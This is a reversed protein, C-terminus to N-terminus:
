RPPGGGDQPSGAGAPPPQAGARERAVQERLGALERQREALDAEAAAVETRLAQLRREAGAVAQQREALTQQALDAEARLTRRRAEEEEARRELEALREQIAETGDGGLVDTPADTAVQSRRLSAVQVRAAGLRRRLAVLDDAVRREAELADQTARREAALAAELEGVRRQLADGRTEAAALAQERAEIRSTRELTYGCGALAPALLGLAVVAPGPRSRLSSAM